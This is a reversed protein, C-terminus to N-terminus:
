EMKRDLIKGLIISVEKSKTIPFLHTGGHIVFDPFSNRIPFVIDKDGMIQITNPSKDHKWESIKEISWKLYYPNRVTFYELVKPNNTDFIKRFFSYIKVNKEQFIIEPLINPIKSFNGFKIIKSKEHHSKISGLIIVKEAPFIKHIEQVIIGGFSYGLLIFPQSTDIKTAMRKVFALFDENKEPILWDIYEIEYGKPFQIKELVKYDAGLGSVLYIKM